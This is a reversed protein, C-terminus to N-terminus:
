RHVGHDHGGHMEGDRRRVVASVEVPQGSQLRFVIRVNDGVAFTRKPGILMLHMGGPELTAPKGAPVAIQDLHRMRVIGNEVSSAHLEVRAYDPSEVGVIFQDETGPNVITMYAAHVKITAPVLPVWANEVTIRETAAVQAACLAVGLIAGAYRSRVLHRGSM